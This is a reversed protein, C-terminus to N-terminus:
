PLRVVACADTHEWDSDVVHAVIVGTPLKRWSIFDGESMWPALAARVAVRFDGGKIERKEGTWLTMTPYQVATDPM